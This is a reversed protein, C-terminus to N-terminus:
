PAGPDGPAIKAVATPLLLRQTPPEPVANAVVFPNDAAQQLSEWVGTSVIIHAESDLQLHFTKSFHQFVPQGTRKCIECEPLREPHPNPRDHDRVVFMAGNPSVGQRDLRALVDDRLRLRIGEAM